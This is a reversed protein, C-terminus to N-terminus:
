EVTIRNAASILIEDEAVVIDAAAFTPADDPAATTATEVVAGAVGPVAAGIAGYLGFRLLDQGLQLEHAGGDGIDAAVADRITTLPTGEAPFGEGETITIRLHLYRRTARTFGVTHSRNDRGIVDVLTTGFAQIGAPKQSWIVAAIEDDDGGSVITEFSHPPRGDVEVASENEYVRAVEVGDLESVRAATADPSRAGNAALTRLHRAVFESDRELDRGVVADATSTVHQVGSIPTGVVFGGALGVVAGTATCTAATRVAPFATMPGTVAITSAADTEVVILPLGNPDDGGDLATVGTVANLDALIGAVIEARTPSVDSTTDYNVADLTVRYLTSATITDIRVVWALDGAGISASADPTFASGGAAATLARASTSIATGDTGYWVLSATSARAAIRRRAYLGLLRDLAVGRATRLYSDSLSAGIGQWTLALLLSITDIMLGDPTGSEVDANPGFNERWLEVVRARAEYLRPIPFGQDSIAFGAAM